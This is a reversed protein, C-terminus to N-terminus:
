EEPLNDLFFRVTNGGMVKRIDKDSLGRDMLAQTLAPLESADLAVQVTGDFDSGLAIHDVGFKEIGYIIADVIGAPSDDCTVDAWFGVGILGGDEAIKAMLDDSINRPSRCHGSFGTHSIVVPGAGMEIVDRVVQPSSHAVDIIMGLERMRTVADRGFDSLGAGSTGHLSGGLKNDFFHHLGMLRYGADFLVDVNELKGDLAHSGEIGLIAAIHPRDMDEASRGLFISSVVRRDGRATPWQNELEDLQQDSFEAQTAFFEDREAISMAYFDKAMPSIRRLREYDGLASLDTWSRVVFAGPDDSAMDHMKEAQYVARETLSGWTKRPWRQAVALTTINDKTDTENTEYNQGEPSKTVATFVQLFMGGERM